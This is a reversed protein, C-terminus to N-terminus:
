LHFERENWVQVNGHDQRRNQTTTYDNEDGDGDTLSWLQIHLQQRKVRSYYLLLLDM